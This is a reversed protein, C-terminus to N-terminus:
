HINLSHFGISTCVFLLLVPFVAPGFRIQHLLLDIARASRVGDYDFPLRVTSTIGKGVFTYSIATSSRMLRECGVTTAGHGNEM